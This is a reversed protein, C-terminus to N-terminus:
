HSTGWGTPPVWDPDDWTSGDVYPHPAAPFDEPMLVMAAVTPGYTEANGIYFAATSDPEHGSASAWFQLIEAFTALLDGLTVEEEVRKNGLPSMIEATIKLKFTKGIDDWHIGAVIPVISAM